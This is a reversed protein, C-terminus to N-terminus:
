SEGPVSVRTGVIIEVVVGGRHEDEHEPHQGDVHWHQYNPDVVQSDV